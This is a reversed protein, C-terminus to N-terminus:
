RRTGPLSVVQLHPKVSICAADGITASSAGIDRLPAEATARVTVTTTTTSPPIQHSARRGAAGGFVGVVIAIGERFDGVGRGVAGVAATWIDGVGAGGGAVDAETGTARSGAGGDVGIADADAESSSRILRTEGATTVMSAADLRPDPNKTVGSVIRVFTWTTVELVLTVM